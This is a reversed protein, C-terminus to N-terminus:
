SKAFVEVLPPRGFVAMLRNLSRIVGPRAGIWRLLRHKGPIDLLLAGILVTLLGQGPIGPLSLAIGLVIILVGLLNKGVVVLWRVWAPREDFTRWRQAAFYRRPLLLVLVVFLASSVALTLLFIIFGILITSAEM